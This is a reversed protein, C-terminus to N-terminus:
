DGCDESTSVIPCNEEGYSISLFHLLLFKSQFIAKEKIEKREKRDRQRQRQRESVCVCVSLCM